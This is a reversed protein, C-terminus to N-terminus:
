YFIELMIFIQFVIIMVRTGIREYKEFADWIKGENEKLVVRYTLFWTSILTIALLGGGVLYLSNFVQPIGIGTWDFASIPFIPIFALYFPLAVKMSKKRGLNVPTTRFGAKLDGQYDGACVMIERGTEQFFIAIALPLMLLPKEPFVSIGGWYPIAGVGFAVAMHGFIGHHKGFYNYYLSIAVLVTTFVGCAWNISGTDKYNIFLSFVISSLILGIGGYYATKEKIIGSPIPKHPRNIKDSQLDTVDNHIMTGTSLLAPVLIIMFMQFFSLNIDMFVACNLASVLAGFSCLFLIPPRVMKTWAVILKVLSM